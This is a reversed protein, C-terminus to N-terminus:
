SHATLLRVLVGVLLVALAAAAALVRCVILARWAVAPPVPVDAPEEQTILQHDPHREGGGVMCDPLVVTEVTDTDVSIYDTALSTLAPPFSLQLALLGWRSGQGTRLTREWPEPRCAHEPEGRSCGPHHYPYHPGAASLTSRGAISAPLVAVVAM